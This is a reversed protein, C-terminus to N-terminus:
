EIADLPYWYSFMYRYYMYAGYTKSMMAILLNVLIIQAVVLYAMYMWRGAANAGIEDMDQEGLLGLATEKISGTFNNMAGQGDVGYLPRLASAFALVFISCLIGFHWIDKVMLLVMSVLPGLYSHMLFLDLLRIVAMLCLISLGYHRTAMDMMGFSFFVFDFLLVVCM